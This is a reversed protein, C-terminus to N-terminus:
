VSDWDRDFKSGNQCHISLRKIGTPTNGIPGGLLGPATSIDRVTFTCAKGDLYIINREAAWNGESQDNYTYRGDDELYLYIRHNGADWWQGVVRPDIKKTATPTIPNRPPEGQIGPKQPPGLQQQSALSQSSESSQIRRTYQDLNVDLPIHKGDSLRVIEKRSDIIDWTGVYVGQYEHGKVSTYTGDARLVIFDGRINKYDWTGVFRERAPSLGTPAVPPNQQAFALCAILMTLICLLLLFGMRMM